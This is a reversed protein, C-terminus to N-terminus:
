RKSQARKVALSIQTNMFREFSHGAASLELPILSSKTLGPLTNIELFTPGQETVIFDSRAYGYAGVANYVTLAAAQLALITEKPLEAPCVERTGSGLYKGAYDFARDENIRIEVPPLVELEGGWDVVGVSAEPGRLFAEVLYPEHGALVPLRELDFDSEIFHLGYSSGDAAPKAVLKGYRTLWEHLRTDLGDHANQLLLAPAVQIGAAAALEKARPKHFSVESARSGSGTFPIGRAECARALQGDEARGGHLGLLLVRRTSAAHELLQDLSDAFPKGSPVLPHEFPDRHGLLEERQVVVFSDHESWFWLEAAPYVQTLHQASAVSVLRERSSGGFLITTEFGDSTSSPAAHEDNRSSMSPLEYRM